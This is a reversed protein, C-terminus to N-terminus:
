YTLLHFEYTQCRPQFVCLMYMYLPSKIGIFYLITTLVSIFFFLQLVCLFYIQPGYLGTIRSQLPLPVEHRVTGRPPMYLTAWFTIL